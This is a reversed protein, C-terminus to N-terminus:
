LNQPPKYYKLVHGYPLSMTSLPQEKGSQIWLFTVNPTVQALHCSSLWVKLM